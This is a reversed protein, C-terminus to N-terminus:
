RLSPAASLKSQLDLFAAKSARRAALSFDHKFEAFEAEGVGQATGQWVSSGDPAVVKCDITIEFKTPPWTFASSSSSSTTIRPVLVFAVNKAAMAQADTASDLAVVGAFTRELVNRLAPEVDAYPTYSVKDGGGGPTTVKLTRDAAAIHYGIIRDSKAIGQAELTNLPPAVNIMHACATTSLALALAFIRIAIRYM